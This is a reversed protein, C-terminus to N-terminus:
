ATDAGARGDREPPYGLGALVEREASRMRARQAASRDDFGCLHLTGHVLYLLLERGPDLDLEAAVRRACDVSAYVEGAPGERDAGLDFSMVDTPAPDGLWRAHLAGLTADDVLVVGIEIGPRGGHALAAEVAAAVAQDSLLRPGAQWDVSVAVREPAPVRAGARVSEAAM